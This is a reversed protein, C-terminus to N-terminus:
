RCSTCTTCSGGDKRLKGGRVYFDNVPIEGMKAMVAAAEDTGAAEIAHLYYRIASYVAAQASSPMRGHRDFFRKSWARTESDRDRYIWYRLTHGAGCANAADGIAGGEDRVVSQARHLPTTM